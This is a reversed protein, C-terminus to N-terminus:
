RKVGMYLEKFIQNIETSSDVDTEFEDPEREERNRRDRDYDPKFKTLNLKDKNEM